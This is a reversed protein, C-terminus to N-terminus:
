SFINDITRGPTVLPQQGEPVLTFYLQGNFIAFVLQEIQVPTLAVTLLVRGSEQQTTAGQQNTNQGVTVVRQGVALVDVNQLLYHVVKAGQAGQQASAPPCNLRLVPALSVGCGGPKIDFQALLSVKNGEHIFGAVGPPVGVEVSVAQKDPPVPLALGGATGPAVFRRDVVVEGKLITVGAVKGRIQDLSNIAGDPVVKKPVQQASILGTSQATDGTVGAPIDEKAVYVRTLVTGAFAKNELSHVYSILAVTAIAALVVAMVLAVTRRSM